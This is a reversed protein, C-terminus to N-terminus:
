GIVGEEVKEDADAPQVELDETYPGEYTEGELAVDGHDALAANLEAGMVVGLGIVFFFLLAVMVGALSGYTRDYGGFAAIANPLLEVTVLWWVTVLLAGPWKRCSIKRYRSPTLALFIFYFTVFLTVGPVLRYLGLTHALGNSFPLYTVVFHHASTLAVTAGFAAMLLLVSVLIVAISGLRYEWFPACYKVGYARRLIDRITEIFSGATWLGVAAGVWLLTGARAALVENIPGSLVGSVEGPMRALITAVTLQADEQRGILSAIAAALIIFPFLAVMALYALNGAHIFGDDYVGVAVRKVVEWPALQERKLREAYEAGFRAHLTALRKRREEPSHPHM